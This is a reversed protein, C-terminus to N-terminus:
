VDGAAQQTRHMDQLQQYTLGEKHLETLLLWYKSPISGERIWRRVTHQHVNLRFAVAQEGGCANIVQLIQENM